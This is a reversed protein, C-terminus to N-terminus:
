PFEGEAPSAAPTPGRHPGAPARPGPLPPARRPLPIARSAARVKPRFGPVGGARAFGKGRLAPTRELTRTNRPGQRDIPLPFILRVCLAAVRMPDGISGVAHGGKDASHDSVRGPQGAILPAIM